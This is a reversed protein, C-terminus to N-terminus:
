NVKFLNLYGKINFILFYEGDKSVKIYGLDNKDLIKDLKYNKDSKGLYIDMKNIKPNYNSFIIIQSNKSIFPYMLPVNFENKVVTQEKKFDYLSYFIKNKQKYSYLLYNNSFALGGFTNAKEIEKIKYNKDITILSIENNKKDILQKLLAIKESNLIVLETPKQEKEIKSINFNTNIFNVKNNQINLQYIFTDESFQKEDM